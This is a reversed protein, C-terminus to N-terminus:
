EISALRSRKFTGFKGSIFPILTEEYVYMYTIHVDVSSM